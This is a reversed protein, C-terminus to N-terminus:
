VHKGYQGVFGRYTGVGASPRRRTRIGSEGRMVNARTLSRELLSKLRILPEGGSCFMRVGADHTHADGGNTADM